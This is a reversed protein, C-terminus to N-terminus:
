MPVNPVYQENKKAEMYYKWKILCEQQYEDSVAYTWPIPKHGTYECSLNCYRKDPLGDEGLMLYPHTHGHMNKRGRLEMPHIPAHSMWFGKYKHLAYIQEYTNVLDRMTIDKRDLDHNGCVLIKNRCPLKKIRELWEKSFAIDGLLWLTARKPVQALTEYLAEHQEESSMLSGDPNKLKRFQSINEHAFHCDSIIYRDSKEIQM